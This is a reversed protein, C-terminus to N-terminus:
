LKQLTLKLEHEKATVDIGLRKCEVKRTLVFHVAVEKDPDSFIPQSGQYVVYEPPGPPIVKAAEVAPGETVEM